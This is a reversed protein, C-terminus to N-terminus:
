TKGSYNESGPLCVIHVDTNHTSDDANNFQCESLSRETGDCVVDRLHVPIHSPLAVRCFQFFNNLDQKSPQTVSVPQYLACFETRYYVWDPSLGSACEQHVLVWHRQSRECHGVGRRQLDGVQWQERNDPNLYEAPPACRGRGSFLTLPGSRSYYLDVAAVSVFRLARAALHASVQCPWFGCIFCCM